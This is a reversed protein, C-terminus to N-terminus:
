YRQIGFTKILRSRISKLVYVFKKLAYKNCTKKRTNDYYRNHGCNDSLSTRGIWCITSSSTECDLIAIIQNDSNEGAGVVRYNIEGM